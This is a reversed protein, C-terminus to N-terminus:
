NDSTGQNADHHGDAESNDMDKRAAYKLNKPRNKHKSSAKVGLRQKSNKMVRKFFEECKIETFDKGALLVLKLFLTRFHKFFKIPVKSCNTQSGEVAPANDSRNEDGVRCKGTWSCETLFERTLFYDVLKYCCDVGNAKGNTGCIFSMNAVFKQLVGEDKLSEELKNLEEASSVPKALIEAQDTPPTRCSNNDFVAQTLYEMNTQMTAMHQMMRMQNELINTQNMLIADWVNNTQGGDTTGTVQPIIVLSSEDNTGAGQPLM